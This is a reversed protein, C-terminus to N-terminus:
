VIVKERMKDQGSSYNVKVGKTEIALFEIHGLIMVKIVSNLIIDKNHRKSRLPHNIYIM